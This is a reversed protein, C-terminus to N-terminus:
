HISLFIEYLTLEANVETDHAFSSQFHTQKRQGGLCANLRSYIEHVLYVREIIIDCM